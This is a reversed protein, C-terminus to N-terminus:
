RRTPRDFTVGALQTLRQLVRPGPLQQDRVDEYDLSTLSIFAKGELLLPVIPKGHDQAYKIENAVWNSAFSAATMVVIVAACAEIQEAIAKDFRDGTVIRSDYWSQIGAGSLHDVLRRVYAM